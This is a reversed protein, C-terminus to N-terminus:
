WCTRASRPRTSRPSTERTRRRSGGGGASPPSRRGGAQGQTEAASPPEEAPKARRLKRGRLASPSRADSCTRPRRRRDRRIRCDFAFPRWGRSTRQGRRWGPPRGRGRHDGAGQPRAQVQKAAVEILRRRRTGGLERALAPQNWLGLFAAGVRDVLVPNTGGIAVKEAREAAAVPVRGGRMAPARRGALVADPRGRDGADDAMSSPSRSLDVGRLAGPEGGASVTRRQGRGQRAPPRPLPEAGACDPWKRSTPPRRTELADGRGAHGQHGALGGRLPAHAKIKPLSSSSGTISTGGGAGEAVLLTPM